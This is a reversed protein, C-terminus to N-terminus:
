RYHPGAAPANVSCRVVSAVRRNNDRRRRASASQWSTAASWRPLPQVPRHDCRCPTITRHRPQGRRCPAQTTSSSRASRLSRASGDPAARRNSLRTVVNSPVSSTWSDFHSGTVVRELAGREIQRARGPTPAPPRRATPMRQDSHAVSNLTSSTRASAAAAVGVETPMRRRRCRLAEIEDVGPRLRRLLDQSRSSDSRPPKGRGCVCIGTNGARRIGASSGRCPTPGSKMTAPRTRRRADGCGIGIWSDALVDSM